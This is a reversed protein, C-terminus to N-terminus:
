GQGKVKHESLGWYHCVEEVIEAKMQDIPKEVHTQKSENVQHAGHPNNQRKARYLGDESM